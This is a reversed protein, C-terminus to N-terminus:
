SQRLTAPGPSRKTMQRLCQAYGGDPKDNTLRRHGNTDRTLHPHLLLENLIAQAALNTEPQMSVCLSRVVRHHEFRQTVDAIKRSQLHEITGAQGRFFHDLDALPKAR